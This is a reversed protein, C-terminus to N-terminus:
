FAHFLLSELFHNKSSGMFHQNDFYGKLSERYLRVNHKVFLGKMPEAFLDLHYKLCNNILSSFTTIPLYNINSGWSVCSPEEHRNVDIPRWLFMLTLYFYFFRFTLKNGSFFKMEQLVETPEICHAMKHTSWLVQFTWQLNSIAKRHLIV